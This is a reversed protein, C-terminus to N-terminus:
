TSGGNSTTSSANPNGLSSTPPANSNQPAPDTTKNAHSRLSAVRDPNLEYQKRKRRKPETKSSLNNDNPPSERSPDATINDEGCFCSEDSSLVPVSTTEPSSNLSCSHPKDFFKVADYVDITKAVPDYCRYLTVSDKEYGLFIVKK